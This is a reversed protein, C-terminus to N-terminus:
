KVLLHLFAQNIEPKETEPTNIKKLKIRLNIDKKM